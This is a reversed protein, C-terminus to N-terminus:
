AWSSEPDHRMLLSVLFVNTAIALLLDLLTGGVPSIFAILWLVVLIGGTRRLM